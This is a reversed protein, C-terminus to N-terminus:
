REVVYTDADLDSAFGFSQNCTVFWRCPPLDLHVDDDIGVAIKVESTWRDVTFATVPKQVDCPAVDGVLSVELHKATGLETEVADIGFEDPGGGLGHVPGENAHDSEAVDVACGSAGSNVWRIELPAEASAERFMPVYTGEPLLTAFREVIAEDIGELATVPLTQRHGLPLQPVDPRVASRLKAVSRPYVDAPELPM